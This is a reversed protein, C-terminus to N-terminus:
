CALNGEIMEAESSQSAQLTEPLMFSYVRYPTGNSDTLKWDYSRSGNIRMLGLLKLPKLMEYKKYGFDLEALIKEFATTDINCYGNSVSVEGNGDNEKVYDCLEIYAQEITPKSTFDVATLKRLNELVAAKIADIDLKEFDGECDFLFDFCNKSKFLQKRTLYTPTSLRGDPAELMLGISCTMRSRDRAAFMRVKYNWSNTYVLKTNINIKSNFM